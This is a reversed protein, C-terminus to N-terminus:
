HRRLANLVGVGVHVRDEAVLSAMLTAALRQASQWKTGTLM